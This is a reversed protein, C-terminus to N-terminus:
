ASPERTFNFESNMQKAFAEVKTLPYRDVDSYVLLFMTIATRVSERDALPRSKEIERIVLEVWQSRTATSRNFQHLNIADWLQYGLLAAMVGFIVFYGITELM